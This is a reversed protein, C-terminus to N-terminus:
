NLFASVVVFIMVAAIVVLIGAIMLSRYKARGKPSLTADDDHKDKDPMQSM